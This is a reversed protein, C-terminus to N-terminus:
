GGDEHKPMHYLGLNMLNIATNVGVYRFPEPPMSLTRRLLWAPPRGGDLMSALIAGMRTGMAMGLGSYAGGYLVNDGEGTTGIVPEQDSTAGMPGTWAHEFPYERLAPYKQAMLRHLEAFLTGEGRYHLGNGYFYAAGAGVLVRSGPAKRGWMYMEPSTHVVISDPVTSLAERSVPGTVAAGTHVPFIRDAAVGLAPSYGNTAVVVRPARLQFAAGALEVVPGHRVRLVRSGEHIAAGLRKAAGMLGIAYRLPDLQTVSSRELDCAIGFRDILELVQAVNDATGERKGRETGNELIGGSRGTAGYGAFQAEVLAVRLRPQRLLLHVATSLGTVGGGIVAVDARVDGRLPPTRAPLGRAAWFSRNPTWREDRLVLDAGGFWALGAGTVGAANLFSRRDM